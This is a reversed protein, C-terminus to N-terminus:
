CLETFNRTYSIHSNSFQNPSLYLDLYKKKKKKKKQPICHNHCDFFYLCAAIAWPEGISVKESNGEKKLLTVGLSLMDYEPPNIEFHFTDSILSYLVLKKILETIAL